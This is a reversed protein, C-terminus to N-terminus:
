RRKADGSMLKAMLLILTLKAFESPQLMRGLTLQFWGSVNRVHGQYVACLAAHYWLLVACLLASLYEYPFTTVV